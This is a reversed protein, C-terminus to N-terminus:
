QPADEGVLALRDGRPSVILRSIRQLGPESFQAIREWAASPASWRLLQNGQAALLEGQPTWAFFESGQPLPALRESSGRVPDLAQIWGTSGSDRQVYSVARRGPVLWLARGINRAVVEATGRALEARRLTAPSGLVFVFVTDANLWTHYGVPQISDLILRPATGDLAFAWLRQTSDREVRIVSLHRGDPMLTPSYESEPTATVAVAPGAPLDYRFIDTQGDRGSTFYLSRGDPTFFPQNDYGRRATLNRPAGVSLAGGSRELTAVYIDTGPAQAALASASASLLSAMLTVRM